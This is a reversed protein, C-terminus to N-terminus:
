EIVKKRKGTQIGLRNMKNYLTSPKLGLIKAAGHPGKVRGDAMELVEKIHQAEAEDLTLTKSTTSTTEQPFPVRLVNGTTIIVAHEIMNRLERINGPWHYRVLLEMTQKPIRDINKGMAHKFESLFTMVLLPIDKRRNRLPPVKIPFVNLRYYLDERFKGQQVAEALNRNTAAIVRVNVKITNPSGLRELEGEQLVRLLKAQLEMTLEGIEDLLITSGDAVEFRGIQKTLAGTYAGKERGFLESEILTPPLSACNVKVMTRSKRPSLNHIARAILEKGTGTEGTILVSAGTGAVQEVQELVKLIAESEGIVDDYQYNVNIESRLYDAEVQLREKLSQIDEYSKMLQEQANKRVLTNTFIKGLLEVRSIVEESWARETRISNAVLVYELSQNVFLPIVLNSQIGIRSASRRDVVAEPPLKNIDVQVTEGALLKKSHWPFHEVYNITTPAPAIGVGNCSHTVVAIKKDQSVKLLACRDIFFFHLLQKLSDEIETDVQDSPVNVFKASLDSILKEFEFQEKLKKETRKRYVAHAFVEGVRRLQEVLWDPWNRYEGFSGFGVGCLPMSGVSVPIGVHSKMGSKEFSAKEKSAEAPLDPVRDIRIIEGRIIKQFYWPLENALLTKPFPQIGRSAYSHTVNFDLRDESFEGFTSRDIGLFDVICKLAREIQNDVEEAPLNVLLASVDTILEQLQLKEELEALKQRKDVTSDM